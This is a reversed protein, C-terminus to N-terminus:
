SELVILFLNKNLLVVGILVGLTFPTLKKLLISNSPRNGTFIKHPLIKLIEEPKLGSKELEQKAESESKGKALAETQAM